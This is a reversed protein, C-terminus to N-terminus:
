VTFKQDKWLREVDKLCGGTHGAFCHFGVLNSCAWFIGSHNQHVCFMVFCWLVHEGQFAFSRLIQDLSSLNTQVWNMFWTTQIHKSINPDNAECSRQNLKLVRMHVSTGPPKQDSELAHVLFSALSAHAQFACCAIKLILFVTKTNQSFYIACAELSGLWFTSRLVSADSSFWFIHTAFSTFLFWFCMVVCWLVDCCMVVCWLVYCCMVVGQVSRPQKMNNGNTEKELRLQGVRVSTALVSSFPPGLASGQSPRQFNVSLARLARPSVGRDTTMALCSLPDSSPLLPVSPFKFSAVCVGVYMYVCVPKM